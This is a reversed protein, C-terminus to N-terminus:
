RLSKAGVMGLKMVVAMDSLSTCVGSAGYTAGAPGDPRLVRFAGFLEAMSSCWRAAVKNPAIGVESNAFPLAAAVLEAACGGSYEGMGVHEGEVVKCTDARDLCVASHAGGLYFGQVELHQPRHLAREGIAATVTDTGGATAFQEGFEARLRCRM